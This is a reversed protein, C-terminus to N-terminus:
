KAMVATHLSLLEATLCAMYKKVFITFQQMYNKYLKTFLVNSLTIKRLQVFSLRIRCSTYNTTRSVFVSKSVTRVCM